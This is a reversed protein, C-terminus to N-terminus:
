SDMYVKTKEYDTLTRKKDLDIVAIGTYVWQPKQFLYKLDKKADKINKPKGIIKNKGILVVTDFGIVVGKKFRKAAEQAKLFANDKVLGSVSSTIERKEKVKSKYVKFKLGVERLLKVRQPSRSALIINIM